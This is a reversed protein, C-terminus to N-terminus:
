CDRVGRTKKLQDLADQIVERKLTEDNFM